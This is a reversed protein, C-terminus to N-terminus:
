IDMNVNQINKQEDLSQVHIPLEDNLKLEDELPSGVIPCMFTLDKIFAHCLTTNLNSLVNVMSKNMKYLKRGCAKLYHIHAKFTCEHASLCQQEIELQTCNIKYTADM